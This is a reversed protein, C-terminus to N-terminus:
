SHIFIHKEQCFVALFIWVIITVLGVQAKMQKKQSPTDTGMCELGQKLDRIWARIQEANTQLTETQEDLTKHVQAQNELLIGLSHYRDILTESDRLFPDGRLGRMRVTSLLDNFAEMRGSHILSLLLLQAPKIPACYLTHAGWFKAYTM